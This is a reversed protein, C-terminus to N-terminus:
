RMKEKLALKRNHVMKARQHHRITYRKRHINWEAAFTLFFWNQFYVILYRWHQTPARSRKPKNNTVVNPDRDWQMLRKKENTSMFDSCAAYSWSHSGRNPQRRYSVHDYFKFYLVSSQKRSAENEQPVSKRRVVAAIKGHSGYPVKCQYKPPVTFTKGIYYGPNGYKNVWHDSKCILWGNGDDDSTDTCSNGNDSSCEESHADEEEEDEEGSSNAVAYDKRKKSLATTRHPSSSAAPTDDGCCATAVVTSESTAAAEAVAARATPNSRRTGRGRRGGGVGRGRGRAGAGGAGRGRGGRGAQDDGFTRQMERALVEPPGDIMASSQTSAPDSADRQVGRRSWNVSDLAKSKRSRRQQNNALTAVVTARDISCNSFLSDKLPLYLSHNVEYELVDDSQPAINDRFNIWEEVVKPASSQFTSQLKRAVNILKERSGEVFGEPKISGTPMSKLIYMGEPIKRAPDAQPFNPIDVLEDDIFGCLETEDPVIRIVNDATYPRYTTKVGLPFMDSASVSEFTFELETWEMKSYRGLQKDVHPRFYSTYDPIMHLDEVKVPEKDSKLAQEIAAKYNNMTLTHAARIRRWILAFKSDIDEHTHGVPLRALVVRNTLGRAVLMECLALVIKSTNESGGDIQIFVTDPLRGEDQLVKEFALLVTHVCLNANNKVNEYTRYITLFRGHALVGQLHQTLTENFTKLNGCWPLQCHNQAMGDVIISLYRSPQSYAQNRKRYYSLRENMYMSRHLAHMMTIHERSRRDRLTRRANSLLACTMCKGTVAKFERIKVYHFCSRWMRCFENLSLYRQGYHVMDLIYEDHVETLTIPELHIECRSNPIADGILDFHDHMWAYCTLSTPSNPVVLAAIQRHDLSYGRLKALNLLQKVFVPNNQYKAADGLRGEGELREQTKIGKKVDNTLQYLLTQGIGYCHEFCTHCM